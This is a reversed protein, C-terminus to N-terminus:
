LARVLIARFTDHLHYYMDPLVCTKPWQQYQLYAKIIDTLQEPRSAYFQRSHALEWELHQQGPMVPQNVLSHLFQLVMSGSWEFWAVDGTNSQVTQEISSHVTWRKYLALLAVGLLFGGCIVFCSVKLARVLLWRRNIPSYLLCRAVQSVSLEIRTTTTSHLATSHLCSLARVM